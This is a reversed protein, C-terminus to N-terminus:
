SHVMILVMKFQEIARLAHPKNEPLLIAEGKELRFPKGAVFVEAKGELLLILADYPATHESLSQGADFAFLTVTGASKDILTRSVVAGEQYDIMEALRVSQFLVKKKVGSNESM